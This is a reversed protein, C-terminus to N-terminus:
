FLTFIVDHRRLVKVCNAEAQETIRVWMGLLDAKIFCPELLKIALLYDNFKPLVQSRSESCTVLEPILHSFCQRLSSAMGILGAM